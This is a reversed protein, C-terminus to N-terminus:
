DGDSVVDVGPFPSLAERLAALVAPMDRVSCTVIVSADADYDDVTVSMPEIDARNDPNARDAPM